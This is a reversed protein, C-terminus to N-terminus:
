NIFFDTPNESADFFPNFTGVFETFVITIDFSISALENYMFLGVCLGTFAWVCCCIFKFSRYISEIKM